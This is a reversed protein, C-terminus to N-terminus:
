RNQKGDDSTPATPVVWLNPAPTPQLSGTGRQRFAQNLMTEVDAETMVREQRQDAAHFHLIVEEGIRTLRLQTWGERGAVAGLARLFDEYGTPFLPDPTRAANGGGRGSRAETYLAQLDEDTLLVAEDAGRLDHPRLTVVIGEGVVLLSVMRRTTGDLYRGVARLGDQLPRYTFSM